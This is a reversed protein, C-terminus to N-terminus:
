TQEKSRAYERMAVNEARVRELDAILTTMAADLRSFSVCLETLGVASLLDSVEAIRRRVSRASTIARDIGPCTHAPPRPMLNRSMAGRM